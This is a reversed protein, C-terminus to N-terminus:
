ACFGIRIQNELLQNFWRLRQTLMIEMLRKVGIQEFWLHIQMANLPFIKPKTEQYTCGIPLCELDYLPQIWRIFTTRTFLAIMRDSHCRKVNDSLRTSHWYSLIYLEYLLEYIFFSLVTFFQETNKAPRFTVTQHFRSISTRQHSSYYVCILQPHHCIHWNSLIYHIPM